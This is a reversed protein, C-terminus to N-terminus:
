CSKLLQLIDSITWRSAIAYRVSYVKSSPVSFARTVFGNASKAIPTKEEYKYAWYWHSPEEPERHGEVRPFTAITGDKLKKNKTYHELWGSASRKKSLEPPISSQIKSKLEPPIPSQIKSKPEPPNPMWGCVGCGSELVFLPQECSPCCVISTSSAASQSLTRPAHAKCEASRMPASRQRSPVSQGPTSTTQKGSRIHASLKLQDQQCVGLVDGQLADGKRNSPYNSKQNSGLKIGSGDSISLNGNHGIEESAQIVKGSQANGHSRSTEDVSPKRNPQRPHQPQHPSGSRQESTGSRLIGPLAGSVKGNSSHASLCLRGQQSKSPQSMQGHHLRQQHNSRGELQRQIGRVSEEKCGEQQYVRSTQIGPINGEPISETGISSGESDDGIRVAIQSSEPRDECPQCESLAQQLVESDSPLVQVGERVAPLHLKGNEEGLKSSPIIGELLNDSIGTRSEQEHSSIAHNGTLTSAGKRESGPKPTPTLNSSNSPPSTVLPSESEKRLDESEQLSASTDRPNPCLELCDNSLTVTHPEYNQSENFLVETSFGNVAAVTGVNSNLYTKGQPLEASIKVRIRDGVKWLPPFASGDEWAPDVGGDWDRKHKHKPKTYQEVDFLRVEDAKTM